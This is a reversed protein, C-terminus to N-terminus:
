FEYTLGTYFGIRYPRFDVSPSNNISNLYYSFRPEVAVSFHKGLAYNVGMGLTGSINFTSIDATEGINQVGYQNEIYANNGVVIGTNFGTLLEVGIKRDVVRYRVYLPIEMFEFVQSFGGNAVLLNAVGTNKAEFDGTLEAGKPTASFQIVGATSNMAMTNNEVRVQNSFYSLGADSLVYDANENRAFVPTSNESQQGNQAYYIGSEVIWRKSTKYQVSFGGGVNANGASGKYNMNQAYTESYSSSYSSYGPAVYMGMKWNNDSTSSAKVNKINEAVLLAEQASLNRASIVPNHRALETHFQQNQALPANLTSIMTLNISERSTLIHGSAPTKSLTMKSSVPSVGAFQNSTEAKLEASLQNEVKTEESQVATENKGKENQIIESNVIKSKDEKLNENFYWGALFALAVVAAASIWGIHVMRNKRRRATLHLQVNDWIYPPPTAQFNELKERIIDDTNKKDKM